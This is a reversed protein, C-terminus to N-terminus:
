PFLGEVNTPQSNTGAPKASGGQNAGVVSPFDTCDYVTVTVGCDAATGPKLHGLSGDLGCVDDFAFAYGKNEYLVTHIAKAYVDYPPTKYLNARTSDSHWWEKSFVGDPPYVGVIMASSINRCFISQVTKNVPQMSGACGVIGEFDPVGISEPGGVGWEPHNPFNLKGGSFTGNVLFTNTGPPAPVLEACQVTISPMVKAAWIKSAQDAYGSQVGFVTNSPVACLLGGPNAIQCIKGTFPPNPNYNLCNAWMGTFQPALTALADKRSMIIGTKNTTGNEQISYPLHFMDVYSINMFFTHDAPDNQRSMELFQWQSEYPTVSPNATTPQSIAVTMYAPSKKDTNTVMMFGMAPHDLSMFVRGSYPVATVLFTFSTQAKTICFPAAKMADASIGLYKNTSWFGPPAGNTLGGLVTIWVDHGSQNKFDVRLTGSPAGQGVVRIAAVGLMFSAALFTAAFIKLKNM